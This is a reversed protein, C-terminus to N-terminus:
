RSKSFHPNNAHPETALVRLSERLAALHRRIIQVDIEGPGM